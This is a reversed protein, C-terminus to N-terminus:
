SHSLNKFSEINYANTVDNLAGMNEDSVKKYIDRFEVGERYLRIGEQEPTEVAQEQKALWAKRRERRQFDKWHACQLWGQWRRNLGSDSFKRVTAGEKFGKAFLNPFRDGCNAIFDQLEQEIDVAMM